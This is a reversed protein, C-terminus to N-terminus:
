CSATACRSAVRLRSSTGLRWEVEVDRGPLATQESEQVGGLLEKSLPPRTYPLYDEAGVVILEGDYEARRIAQAARLGALSAGVIVIPDSV